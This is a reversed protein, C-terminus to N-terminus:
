QGVVEKNNALGWGLDPSRRYQNGDVGHIYGCMNLRLIIIYSKKGRGNDVGEGRGAPWVKEM